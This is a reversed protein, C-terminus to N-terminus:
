FGERGEQPSRQPVSRLRPRYLGLEEKKKNQFMRKGSKMALQAFCRVTM